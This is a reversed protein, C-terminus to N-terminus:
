EIQPIASWPASIFNFALLLGVLVAILLLSAVLMRLGTM